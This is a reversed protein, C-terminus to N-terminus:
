TGASLARIAADLEGLPDAWTEADQRRADFTPKHWIQFTDSSAIFFAENEIGVKDRWEQKLLVQGTPNITLDESFGSFMREFKRRIPSGRDLMGVKEQVEEIASITYGELFDRDEEGFVLVFMPADDPRKNPMSDEIVRRFPAPISVRGKSDVKQTANGRFWRSM